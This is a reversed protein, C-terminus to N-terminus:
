NTRQTFTELAAGVIRELEATATHYRELSNVYEGRAEFLTRQADLVDVYRFLGRRYGDRTSAFAAEAQPLVNDRLAIAQDHGSAAEAHVVVLVRSLELRRARALSRAESAEAHAAAVAGQNRDFVPLPIEVAFVLAADDSARFHRVGLGATVNPIARARALDVTAERRAIETAWRAVDPNEALETGIQALSPLERLQFLDGDTGSFVPSITGWSSALLRKAAELEVNTRALAVELTAVEVKSRAEEVASAAGARIRARTAQLSENAVRLLDTSLLVRERAALVSAFRQTTETLVDLRAAEYDWGSLERRLLAVRQRKARKGGLEVLQGLFVTTEAARYGGFGDSGGFNEAEVAFTPNPALGAQLARAEHARVQWSFSELRPSALLAAALAERLVINGQPEHVPPRTTSVNAPSVADLGGGLSQRTALPPPLAACGTAGMLAILVFNFSTRKYFRLDLVTIRM